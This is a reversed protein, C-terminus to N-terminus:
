TMQAYVIINDVYSQASPNFSGGCTILRLQPTKTNGYVAETPFHKKSVEDVKTVTFRVTTGDARKIAIEDGVAMKKLRYFIGEQGNGDVHGLIVSPGLQGPTPSKDYWGAQKPQSVPPVQVSGDGNLGLPVLSSEADIKPVSLHV